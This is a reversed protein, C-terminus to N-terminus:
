VGNSIFQLKSNIPFIRPNESPADYKHRASRGQEALETRDAKRGRCAISGHRDHPMPM